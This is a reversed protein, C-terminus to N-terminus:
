SEGVDRRGDATSSGAFLSLQPRSGSRRTSCTSAWAIAARMTRPREVSSTGVLPRAMPRFPVHDETPAVRAAPGGRRTVTGVAPRRAVPRTPRSPMKFGALWVM